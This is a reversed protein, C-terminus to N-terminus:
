HMGSKAVVGDKMWLPHRELHFAHCSTCTSAILSASGTAQVEGGHCGRCTKIEPMLVDSAHKSHPADHCTACPTLSTGHRSHDFRASPMWVDTSVVEAVTWRAGHTGDQRKVDHCESCVRREFLDRAVTEARSQALGLLRERENRSIAIAPLDVVRDPRASAFRDPYSALYRASYYEVLSAMVRKPDGHPVTREPAAPDFDLRHCSACHQEMRVPQMRAGGPEPQHCDACKMVVTGDPAKVGKPDLHVDHAFHLGQSHAASQADKFDPHDLLFDTARVMRRVAVSSVLEGGHCSACLRQDTQILRAPEEHEAHCSTCALREMAVPVTAASPTHTHLNTAHCSLCAESRVRVFPKEHCTECRENLVAHSIHLPGPLWARDSPLHLGRLTESGDKRVAGGFPVLLGLSLLAIFMGWAWRRKYMGLQHLSLRPRDVVTSLTDANADLEFTFALELGEDPEVIRLINAGIQVTDGVHLEADRRVAGNVVAQAPSKCALLVRGGARFIRAHELAVRSDKLHLTRDTARGLTIADSDVIRDRTEVSGATRTLFRILTRV